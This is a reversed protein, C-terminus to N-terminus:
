LLSGPVILGPDWGFSVAPAAGLIRKAAERCGKAADQAAAPSPGQYDEGAVYVSANQVWRRAYTELLGAATLQAAAEAQRDSLSTCDAAHPATYTLRLPSSAVEVVRLVGDVKDADYYVRPVDYLPLEGAPYQLRRVKSETADWAALAALSVEGDVPTVDEVLYRPSIRSLELLAVALESQITADLTETGPLLLARTRAVVTEVTAM